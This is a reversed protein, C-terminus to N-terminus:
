DITSRQIALMPAASELCIKANREIFQVAGEKARMPFFNHSPPRAQTIVKWFNERLYSRM